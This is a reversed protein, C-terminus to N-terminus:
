AVASRRVFSIGRVFWSCLQRHSVLLIEIGIFVLLKRSLQVKNKAGFAALPQFLLIDIAAPAIVAGFAVINLIDIREFLSGSGSIANSPSSYVM